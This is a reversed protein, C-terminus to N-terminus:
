PWLISPLVSIAQSIAGDIDVPADKTGNKIQEQLEYLASWCASRWNFGANGEQRFREAIPDKFVTDSAYSCLSLIGDYGRSRAMADLHNQVASIGANKLDDDTIENELPLVDTVDGWGAALLRQEAEQTTISQLGVDKISVFYADIDFMPYAAKIMFPAQTQDDLDFGHMNKAQDVYYKMKM